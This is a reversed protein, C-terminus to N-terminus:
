AKPGVFSDLLAVSEKRAIQAQDFATMTWRVGLQDLHECFIRM